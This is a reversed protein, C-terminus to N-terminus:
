DLFCNLFILWFDSRHNYMHWNQFCHFGLFPPRSTGCENGVNMSHTAGGPVLVKVLSGQQGIIEIEVGSRSGTCGVGESELM